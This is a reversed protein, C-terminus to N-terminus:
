LSGGTFTHARAAGSAIAATSAVIAPKSPVFVGGRSTYDQRGAQVAAGMRENFAKLGRSVVGDGFLGRLVDRLDEQSIQKTKLDEVTKALSAVQRAWESQQALNEPWRDTFRDWAFVPNAVNILQGANTAALIDISILRCLRVLMSSLSM